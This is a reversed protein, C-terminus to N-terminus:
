RTVKAGRPFLAGCLAGRELGLLHSGVAKQVSPNLLATNIQKIDRQGVAKNALSRAPLVARVM